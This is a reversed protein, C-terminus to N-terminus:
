STPKTHVLAQIDVPSALLRPTTRPAPLGSSHSHSSQPGAQQSPFHLSRNTLQHTQHAGTGSHGSSFGSSTSHNGSVNQHQTSTGSVMSQLRSHNDSFCESGSEGVHKGPALGSQTKSHPQPEQPQQHASSQLKPRYSPQFHSHQALTGGSKPRPSHSHSGHQSDSKLHPLHSNHQSHSPQQPIHSEPHGRRLQIQGEGHHQTCQLSLPTMTVGIKPTLHNHSFSVVKPTDFAPCGM